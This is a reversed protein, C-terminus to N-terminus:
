LPCVSPPRPASTAHDPIPRARTVRPQIKQPPSRRREGHGSIAATRSTTSIPGRRGRKSWSKADRAALSEGRRTIRIVTSVRLASATAERFSRRTGVGLISARAPSETTKRRAMEAPGQVKGAMPVMRVPSDGATWPAIPGKSRSGAWSGVRASRRLASPNRVAAM